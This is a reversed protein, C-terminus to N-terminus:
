FRNNLKRKCKKRQTHQTVTHQTTIYCQLIHIDAFFSSKDFSLFLLLWVRSRTSAYLLFSTFFFSSSLSRSSVIIYLAMSCCIHWCLCLKISKGLDVIFIFHFLPLSSSRFSFSLSLFLSLLVCM